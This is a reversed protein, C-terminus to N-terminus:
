ASQRQLRPISNFRLQEPSEQGPTLVIGRVSVRSVDRFGNNALPIVLQERMETLLQNPTLRSSSVLLQLKVGSQVRNFEEGSCRFEWDELALVWFECLPTEFVRDRTKRQELSENWNSLTGQVLTAHTPQVFFLLRMTTDSIM